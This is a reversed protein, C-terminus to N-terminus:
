FCLVIQNCGASADPAIRWRNTVACPLSAPRNSKIVVFPVIIIIKVKAFFDGRGSVVPHLHIKDHRIGSWVADMPFHMM